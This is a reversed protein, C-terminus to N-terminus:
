KKIQNNGMNANAIHDYNGRIRNYNVDVKKLYTEEIEKFSEFLSQKKKGVMFTFTAALNMLVSFQTLACTRISAITVKNSTWWKTLQLDDLKERAAELQEPSCEINKEIATIIEQNEVCTLALLSLDFHMVDVIEIRANDFEPPPIRYSVKTEEGGKKICELLELYERNGAWQYMDLLRILGSHHRIFEGERLKLKSNAQIATPLVASSDAHLVQVKKEALTFDNLETQIKMLRAFDPYDNM